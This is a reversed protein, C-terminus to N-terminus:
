RCGTSSSSRVGRVAAGRRDRRAADRRALATLKPLLGLLLFVAGVAYAVTRSAVGTAAALGVSPTSTNTGVAGALGALVTSAGDALVGRTISRMDPRVWDADNMRQCVTITGVAKM